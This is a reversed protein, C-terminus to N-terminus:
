SHAALAETLVSGLNSSFRELTHSQELRARNNLVIRQRLGPSQLLAILKDAVDAPDKPRVYLAGDKGLTEEIIAHRTTIIPVGAAMSELLVLPQGEMPYWTPFVLVDAESLVRIKEEGHRVGMFRIKSELGQERVWQEARQAEPLSKDGVLLFEVQPLQEFVMPAAHVLDVFGKSEVLTGMYLVRYFQPQSQAFPNSRYLDTRIGNPVVRIRHSPILGDFKGRFGEGLVIARDVKKLCFRILMKLAPNATRYFTDFSGGHLHVVVPKGTLRAPVLFLSDRLFGLSGEAVSMYVLQPRERLLLSLFRFAHKAALWINELDLRGVNTLDRRDSTDLYVIRFSERLRSSLINSIIVSVGQYPPPTPGIVLVKPGTGNSHASPGIAAEVDPLGPPKLCTGV